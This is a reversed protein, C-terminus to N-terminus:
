LLKMYNLTQQMYPLELFSKETPDCLSPYNHIRIHLEKDISLVFCTLGTDTFQSPIPIIDQTQPMANRCPLVNTFTGSSCAPVM